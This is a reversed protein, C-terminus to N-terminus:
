RAWACYGALIMANVGAVFFVPEGAEPVTAVIRGALWRGAVAVAHMARGAEATRVTASRLAASRLTAVDPSALMTADPTAGSLLLPQEYRNGRDGRNESTADRQRRGAGTSDVEPNRRRHCDLCQTHVDAFGGDTLRHGSAGLDDGSALGRQGVNGQRHLARVSDSDVERVRMCPLEACRLLHEGPAPGEIPHARVRVPEGVLLGTM